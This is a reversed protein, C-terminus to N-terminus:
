CIQAKLGWNKNFKNLKDRKFNILFINLYKFIKDEVENLHSPCFSGFIFRSFTLSNKSYCRVWSGLRDFFILDFFWWFNCSLLLLGDLVLFLFFSGFFSFRQLLWPLCGFLVFVCLQSLCRKSSGLKVVEISHHNVGHGWAFLVLLQELLNLYDINRHMVLVFSVNLLWLVISILLTVVILINVITACTYAKESHLDFKEGLNLSYTINYSDM